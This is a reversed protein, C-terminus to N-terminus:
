SKVQVPKSIYPYMDGEYAYMQAWSLVYAYMCLEMTSYKRM